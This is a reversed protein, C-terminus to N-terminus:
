LLANWFKKSDGGLFAGDKLHAALQNGRETADDPAIFAKLSHKVTKGHTMDFWRTSLKDIIADMGANQLYAAHGMDMGVTGCLKKVFAVEGPYAPALPVGLKNCYEITFMETFGENLPDGFLTKIKTTGGPASTVHVTEHIMDHPREPCELFYIVGTKEATFARAQNGLLKRRAEEVSTDEDEALAAAMDDMDKCTVIMKEALLGEKMASVATSGIEVLEEKSKSTADKSLVGQRVTSLREREVSGVAQPPLSPPVEEPLMPEEGRPAVHQGPAQEKAVKPRAELQLREILRELPALADVLLEAHSRAVASETRVNFTMDLAKRAGDRVKVLDELTDTHQCGQVAKLRMDLLAVADKLETMGDKSSGIAELVERLNSRAM